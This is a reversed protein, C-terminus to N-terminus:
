ARKLIVPGMAKGQRTKIVATSFTKPPVFKELGYSRLKRYLTSRGIELDRAIRSLNGRHLSIARVLLEVEIRRHAARLSDLSEEGQLTKRALDLDQPTIEQGEAM